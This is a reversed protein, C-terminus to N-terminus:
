LMFSLRRLCGPRAPKMKLLDVGEKPFDDLTQVMQVGVIENMAVQLRVVAKKVSCTAFESDKNAVEPLDLPLILNSLTCACSASYGITGGLHKASIWNSIRKAVKGGLRIDERKPHNQIKKAEGFQWVAIGVVKILGVLIHIQEAFLDRCPSSKFVM